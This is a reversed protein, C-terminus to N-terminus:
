VMRRDLKIHIGREPVLTMSRACAQVEGASDGTLKLTCSILLRLLACKLTILALEKFPCVRPGLGFPFYAGRKQKTAGEAFREPCFVEPNPWIDSDRHILWPCGAVNIGAPIFQGSVVTDQLCRRVVVVPVPPYLRLCEKVVMDLRKLQRVEEFTVERVSKDPFRENWERLIAEQESAHKALLYISFSLASSMAEFGAFMFIVVNSFIQQDSFHKERNVSGQLIKNCGYPQVDILVQLLDANQTNQGSRRSEVTNQVRRMLFNFMRAHKTFPYLWSLICRLLPPTFALDIAASNM